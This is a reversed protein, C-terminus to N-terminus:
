PMAENFLDPQQVPAPSIRFPVLPTAAVPPGNAGGESRKIKLEPQPAPYPPCNPKPVLAQSLLLCEHCLGAERASACDALGKGAGRAFGMRTTGRRSLRTTKWNAPNDPDAGPPVLMVLHTRGTKGNLGTRHLGLWSGSLRRWRALPCTAMALSGAANPDDPLGAQLDPQDLFSAANKPAYHVCAGRELCLAPRGILKRIDGTPGNGFCAVGHIERDPSILGIHITLQGINGLWEYHLIIPKADDRSITEITYEKLSREADRLSLVAMRDRIFRQHATM